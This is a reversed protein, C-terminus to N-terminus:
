EASFAPRADGGVQGEGKDGTAFADQEDVGVRLSVAQGFAQTQGRCPAVFRVQAPILLRLREREDSPSENSVVREIQERLEDRRDSEPLNWVVLGYLWAVILLSGAIRRIWPGCSLGANWRFPGLCLIM